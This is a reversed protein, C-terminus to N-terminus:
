QTAQYRLNPTPSKAGIERRWDALKKQLRKVVEQDQNALNNKEGPDALLNFLELTEDERWEILKWRGDRM